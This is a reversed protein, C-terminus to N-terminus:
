KSENLQCEIYGTQCSFKIINNQQKVDENNMDHYPSDQYSIVDAIEVAQGSVECVFIVGNNKYASIFNFIRKATWLTSVTYDDKTPYTQYSALSKNQINESLNNNKIESVLRLVLDSAAHALTETAMKKNLGEKMEVSKQLVINGTDFSNSIRHLSVGFNDIGEKYQWFLPTPGRFAPLMSPHINFSGHKALSTISQPILRSYCSVLIIDPKIKSIESITRTYTKDMKIFPINKELAISEISNNQIVNITSDPSDIAIASVAFQSNILSQLPILSLSSKSSGIYIIKM